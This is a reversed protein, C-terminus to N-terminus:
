SVRSIYSELSVKYGGGLNQQPTRFFRVGCGHTAKVEVTQGESKIRCISVALELLDERLM